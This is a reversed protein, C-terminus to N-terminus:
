KKGSPNWKRSFTELKGLLFTWFKSLTLTSPKKQQYSSHLHHYLLLPGQGLCWSIWHSRNNRNHHKHAKQNFPWDVSKSPYAPQTRNNNGTQNRLFHPSLFSYSTSKRKLKYTQQHRSQESCFTIQLAANPQQSFTLVSYFLNLSCFFFKQKGAITKIQWPGMYSDPM